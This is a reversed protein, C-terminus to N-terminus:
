FYLIASRNNCIEVLSIPGMSSLKGAPDGLCICASGEGLQVGPIVQGWTFSSGLYFQVGSVVLGRTCSSELFLQIGPVVLGWTCSSGVSYFLTLWNGTGLRSTVSWVREPRSFVLNNGGLFLKILSMGAPSPFVALEKKCHLYLQVGPVAPGWTCRSGLYM